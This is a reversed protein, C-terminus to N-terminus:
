AALTLLTELYDLTKVIEPSLHSSNLHKQRYEKFSQQRLAALMDAFSAHRKGRYSRIAPITPQTEYWLVVLSYLVFGTAASRRVAQRTRNQAAGLALHQKCDRFTTEIAGRRSYWQAIQQCSATLVTTYFIDNERRQGRHELAVVQVMRDPVQYFCGEIQACRVRYSRGPAISLTQRTARQALAQEPSLLREGRVRPRGRGVHRPPAPAFLQARRHARGTVEIRRPIRGLVAPATYGYDGMFHLKQQPFRRGVARLMQIMLDTKSRYRCGLKEVTGPSLYLRMMVPLCFYRHPDHRSRLVVSLVVWCHGWRKIKRQRTSLCPDRHMGAAFVKPGKRPLFTDDGVLFLTEQPYWGLFTTLLRWGVAAISWNAASLVYYYSARHRDGVAARIRDALSRGPSFLWGSILSVMARGTPETMELFFVQLWPVFSSVIDM